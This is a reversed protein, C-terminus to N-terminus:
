KTNILHFYIEACYKVDYASNHLKEPERKFIHNYIDGLKPIKLKNRYYKIKIINKTMEGTCVFQKQHLLDIIDNRKYRYLESLLMQKDFLVNHGIIKEISKLDNNLEDFIINIGVGKSNAIEDNIGHFKVSENPISFGNPKIICDVSKVKSKNADYLEYSLQVIRSSDYKSSDKYDYYQDEDKTWHNRRIPLGTTEVDFVMYKPICKDIKLENGLNQKDSKLENGLNPKNSKLENNIKEKDSKQCKKSRLHSSLGSKNKFQKHCTSCEMNYKYNV